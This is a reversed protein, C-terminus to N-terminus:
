QQGGGSTLGSIFERQLSFFLVAPPIISLLTGALFVGYQQSYLGIYQNLIVPLTLKSESQLYIQPGLFTNWWGLFTVLCYAGIMPRVLPMILTLYIRFEGCGDIRGAEIIDNPIQLCAQRFLFIGFVGVCGPILFALYTDMWGLRYITDFNPALLVVGPITLSALMFVQIPGSGRFKYKALAYGGMSSFVLSIFTGAAALFLSNFVFRWFTLVDRLSVRPKFLERFNANNIQKSDVVKGMADSAIVTTSPLPVVQGSDIKQQLEDPLLDTKNEQLRTYIVTPKEPLPKTSINDIITKIGPLFTYTNLVAPDKVAACVLWVFPALTMCGAMSLVAIRGFNWGWKGRIATLGLFVGFVALLLFHLFNLRELFAVALTAGM